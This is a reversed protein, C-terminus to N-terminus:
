SVLKSLRKLKVLAYVTTNLTSAKSTNLPYKYFFFRPVTEGNHLSTESEYGLYCCVVRKKNYSNITQEISGTNYVRM